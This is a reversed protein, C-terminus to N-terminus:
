RAEAVSAIGGLADKRDLDDLWRAAIVVGALVYTLPCAIVMMVGALQQDDLSSAGIGRHGGHLGASFSFLTRPAFILLAGLLCVLKGTVLVALISSWQRSDRQSFVALWFYLAAAFLSGHMLATLAASESAATLLPPLHWSWLLVIQLVTAWLLGVASIRGSPLYPIVALATLPAAVNMLAIHTAMHHSLPGLEPLPLIDALFLACALIALGALALPASASAAGPTPRSGTM